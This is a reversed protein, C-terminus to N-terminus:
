LFHSAIKLLSRKSKAKKYKLVGMNYFYSVDQNRLADLFDDPFYKLAGKNSTAENINPDLLYKKIIKKIEVENLQSHFINYLCTKFSNLLMISIGNYQSESTESFYQEIVEKQIQYGSVLDEFLYPMYKSTFGGSRYYYLPKNIIKVKNVKLLMEINYYLDEGLFKIKDLYKGSTALLDKKYLKAVLSAPFPHGHFYAVVLKSKVEDGLYLKNKSFYFSNNRQRIFGNKGLVKYINCVTIDAKSKIAEKYLIEITEKDIWDDADVFMIYESNSAIIGKRRTLICGENDKNIIRVRADKDQYKMCKQVSKDTSGDNVLILEYDNFTQNLISKICKDLTKEANYIPVVVTVKTMYSGEEMLILILTKIDRLRNNKKLYVLSLKEVCGNVM